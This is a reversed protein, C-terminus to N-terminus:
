PDGRRAPPAVTTYLVHRGTDSWEHVTIGAAALAAEHRRRSVLFLPGDQLRARLQKIDDLRLVERESYFSFSAPQVRFGALGMEPHSSALRALSRDSAVESVTPAVALYFVAFLAANGAALAPVALLGPTPALGRPRRARGSDRRAVLGLSGRAGPVGRFGLPLDRGPPPSARRGLPPARVGPARITNRDLDALASGLWLAVPPVAPLVYSGLKARGLSFFVVVVGAWVVPREAM